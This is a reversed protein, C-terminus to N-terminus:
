RNFIILANNAGTIITVGSTVASTKDVIFAGIDWTGVQNKTLPDPFTASPDLGVNYPAGLDLGNSIADSGSQPVGSANLSPDTNYSNLDYGLAQWETLTYDTTSLFVDYVDGRIINYNSFVTDVLGTSNLVLYATDGLIINNYVECSDGYGNVIGADGNGSIRLGYQDGDFLNNYIKTKPQGKLLLEEMVNDQIVADTNGSRNGNGKYILSSLGGGVLYNYKIKSNLTFSNFICAHGGYTSGFYKPNFIANGIINCEIDDPMNILSFSSYADDNVAYHQQINNYSVNVTNGSLCSDLLVSQGSYIDFDNYTINYSNDKDVSQIFAYAVGSDSTHTNNYINFYFNDQTANFLSFGTSFGRVDINNGKINHTKDSSTSLFAMLDVAATDINIYNYNFDMDASTVTIVDSVGLTLKNYTFNLKSTDNTNFKYMWANTTNNGTLNCENVTLTYQYNTMEFMTLSGAEMDILSNNLESMSGNRAWATRDHGIIDCGYLKLKAANTTVGRDINGAGNIICGHMEGPNFYFVNYNTGGSSTIEVNGIAITVTNDINYQLSGSGGGEDYNGSYVIITDTASIANEAAQINTQNCGSACVTEMSATITLAQWYDNIDTTPTSYRAIRTIRTPLLETTDSNLTKQASQFFLTDANNYNRLGITSLARLSITDDNIVLYGKEKCSIYGLNIQGTYKILKIDTNTANVSDYLLTDSGVVNITGNWLTDPTQYQGWGVLPLFALIYFIKRM